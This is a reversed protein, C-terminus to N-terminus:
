RVFFCVNSQLVRRRMGQVLNNAAHRSVTNRIGTGHGFGASSRIDLLNCSRPVITKFLVNWGENSFTNKQGRSCM